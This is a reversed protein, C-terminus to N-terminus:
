PLMRAFARSEFIDAAQPKTKRRKTKFERWTMAGRRYDWIHIFAQGRWWGVTLPARGYSSLTIARDWADAVIEANCHAVEKM